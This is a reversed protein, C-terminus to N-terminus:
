WLTYVMRQRNEWFAKWQFRVAHSRHVAHLGFAILFWWRWWSLKMIGQGAPVPSFDHSSSFTESPIDSDVVPSFGVIQILILVCGM